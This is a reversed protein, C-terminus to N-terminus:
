RGDAAQWRYRQRRAGRCDGGGGINQREIGHAVSSEGASRHGPWHVRPERQEVLRALRRGRGGDGGRHAGPGPYLSVVAVGHPRLEHAMDATMKDTAAKAVGYIVNGMHKQAAWFASTSSSDAAGRCCSGPPTRGPWSLRACVPMWCAPGATLRSSGSRCRGPSSATRSWASTAAGPTTSSCMRLAAESAIREFAAATEEDRLHDCRIRVVADPLDATDISRGTAFVHFGAAALGIATGRGVGRSAGTVVAIM